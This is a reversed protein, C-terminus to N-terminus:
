WSIGELKKGHRTVIFEIRLSTGLELPATMLGEIHLRYAQTTGLTLRPDISNFYSSRWAAVGPDLLYDSNGVYCAPPDRCPGRISACDLTCDHWNRTSKGCHQCQVIRLM